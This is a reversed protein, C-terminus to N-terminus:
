KRRRHLSRRSERLRADFWFICWCAVMVAVAAVIRLLMPELQWWRMVAAGMMLILIRDRWRKMNDQRDARRRLLSSRM